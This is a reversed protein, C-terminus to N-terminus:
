ILITIVLGHIHDVQMLHCIDFMIAHGYEHLVVDKDMTDQDVIHIRRANEIEIHSVGPKNQYWICTFQDHYYNLSAFYGRGAQLYHFVEYAETYNGSYGWTGFNVYGDPINVVPDGTYIWYPNESQNVVEIFETDITIFKIYIDQGGSDGTSDIIGSEFYGNSDCLTWGLLDDGIPDDDWFEVKINEGWQWENYSDFYKFYGYIIIEGEGPQSKEDSEPHLGGEEMRKATEVTFEIPELKNKM